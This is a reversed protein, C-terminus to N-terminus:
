TENAAVPITAIATAIAPATATTTTTNHTATTTMVHLYKQRASFGRWNRQMEEAAFHELELRRIWATLKIGLIHLVAYGRWVKQAQVTAATVDALVVQLLACSRWAAQIQRAACFATYSM